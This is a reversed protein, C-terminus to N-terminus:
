KKVAKRTPKKPEKKEEKIPEVQVAKKKARSKTARLVANRKRDYEIMESEDFKFSKRLKAIEEHDETIYEGDKFRIKTNYVIGHGYFKVKM